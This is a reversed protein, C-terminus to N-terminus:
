PMYQDTTIEDTGLEEIYNLVADTGTYYEDAFQGNTMVVLTPTGSQLVILETPINNLDEVQAGNIFYVDSLGRKLAWQLVQDKAAMCHPCGELYYYIIYADKEIELAEQFTSLHQDAFDEYDLEQYTDIFDRVRDSGVYADQIGGENFIILTPTGTLGSINTTGQAEQVDIFYFPMGTFDKFFALLEAKVAACHGCEDSYYYGIYRPHDKFELSNFSLENHGVFDKYDTMDIVGYRELFFDLLDGGRYIEILEGQYYVAMSPGDELVVDALDTSLNETKLLYVPINENDELFNVIKSEFDNCVDCDSQYFYIFYYEDSLEAIETDSDLENNSFDNLTKEKGCASLGTTLVLILILLYKKM